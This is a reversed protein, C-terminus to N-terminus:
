SDGFVRVWAHIGFLTLFSRRMVCLVGEEDQLALLHRDLFDSHCPVDYARLMRQALNAEHPVHCARSYHLSKHTTLVCGPYM